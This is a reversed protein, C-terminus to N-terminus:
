NHSNLKDKVMYFFERELDERTTKISRKMMFYPIALMITAHALIFLTVFTKPVESSNSVFMASFAFSYFVVLLAALALFMKHFGSIQIDLILTDNKTTINGTVKASRFHSDLFRRKRKMTFQDNQVKGKYLAKSRSFVDFFDAQPEDLNAILARIFDSKSVNMTLQFDQVLGIRRLFDNM